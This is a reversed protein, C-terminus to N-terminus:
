MQVEVHHYRPWAIISTDIGQIDIDLTKREDWQEEEFQYFRSDDGVM